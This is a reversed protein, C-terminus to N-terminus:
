KSSNIVARVSNLFRKQTDSPLKSVIDTIHERFDPKNVYRNAIARVGFRSQALLALDADYAIKAEPNLTEVNDVALQYRYIALWQENPATQQAHVLSTNMATSDGNQQASIATVTWALSNFPSNQIVDESFDKCKNSYAAQDDKTALQQAFSQLGSICNSLLRSTSYHSYGLDVAGDMVRQRFGPDGAPGYSFIATEKLGFFGFVLCVSLHIFMMVLYIMRRM